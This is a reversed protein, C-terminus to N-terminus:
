LQFLKSYTIERTHGALQCYFLQQIYTDIFIFTSWIVYEEEQQVDVVGISDSSPLYGRHM